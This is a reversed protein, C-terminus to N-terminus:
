RVADSATYSCLVHDRWAGRIKLYDRAYGEVVVGLRKLLGGSRLNEPLHNAMVRHLELDRTAYKLGSELAEHMLGQGEYGRDISFGLFCAQFPGRVINTFNVVGVVESPETKLALLFRAATGTTEEGLWTELRERWQQPEHFDNPRLPETATLHEANRRYFESVRAADEPLPTKM